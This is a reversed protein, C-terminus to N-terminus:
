GIKVGSSVYEMQMSGPNFYLQFSYGAEGSRSKLAQAELFRDDLKFLRILDDAHHVIMKSYGVVQYMTAERKDEVDPPSQVDTIVGVDYRTALDHLFKLTDGLVLDHREARTGPARQQNANDACVLDLGYYPVGIYSRVQNGHAMLHNHRRGSSWDLIGCDADLYYGLFPSTDSINIVVNDQEALYQRMFMYFLVDSNLTTDTIRGHNGPIALVRVTEFTSAIYRILDAIQYSGRVIQELLFQDIQFSQGKFINEGTVCDGYIQVLCHKVPYTNRIHHNIVSDFREILRERREMFTEWSYASLGATEGLRVWEGVHIDSLHLECLEEDVSTPSKVKFKPKVPPLSDVEVAIIEQIVAYADSLRRLKAEMREHANRYHNLLAEKTKGSPVEEDTGALEPYRGIAITRADIPVRVGLNALRRRCYEGTWSRGKGIHKGIGTWTNYYAILACLDVDDINELGRVGWRWRVPPPTTNIPFVSGQDLLIELKIGSAAVIVLRRMAIAADLRSLLKTAQRQDQVSVWHLSQEILNVRGRLDIYVRYQTPEFM